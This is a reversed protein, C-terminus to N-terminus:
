GDAVGARAELVPEHHCQYCVMRHPLRIGTGPAISLPSACRPCPGAFRTVVLEGNWSRFAFYIGALVAGVAWPIHPPIVILLLGAAWSGLLALLSRGARTRTSRADAELLVPQPPHGPLSLRANM